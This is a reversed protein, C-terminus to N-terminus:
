TKAHEMADALATQGDVRLAAIVRTREEAPRNQSLKAKGELRTIAIEFAVVGPVMKDIFDKPEEDIHWPQLRGAEYISALQGLHARSEAPDDHMVPVGYAHVAVYNWIPVKPGNTEYWRPSVYGHPGSFVVLVESKGDFGRWHPNQRAMHALLTGKAGRATDIMFPLHTAMLQGDVVSTVIGFANHRIVDHLHAVDDVSFHQPVYM